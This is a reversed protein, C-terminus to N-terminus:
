SRLLYLKIEQKCSSCFLDEYDGFDWAKLLLDNNRQYAMICNSTHKTVNQDAVSDPGYGAGLCHSLEHLITNKQYYSTNFVTAVLFEKTAIGAVNSYEHALTETQQLGTEDVIKGCAAHGSMLMQIDVPTSSQKAHYLYYLNAVANNHHLQGSDPVIPQNNVFDWTPSDDYAVCEECGAETMGGGHTCWQNVNSSNITTGSYCLDNYSMMLSPVSTTVPLNFVELLIDQIDDQYVEISEKATVSDGARAVYCLDYFYNINVTAPELIWISRSYERENYATYTDCHLMRDTQRSNIIQYGGNKPSLYWFFNNM